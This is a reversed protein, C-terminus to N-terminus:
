RTTIIDHAQDRKISAYTAYTIHDRRKQQTRPHKSDPMRFLLPIFCIALLLPIFCIAVVPFHPLERFVPFMIWIALVLSCLLELYLM